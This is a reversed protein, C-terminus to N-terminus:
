AEDLIVKLKKNFMM